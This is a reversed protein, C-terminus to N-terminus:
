NKAIIKLAYTEFTLLSNKMLEMSHLAAMLSIEKNSARSPLLLSPELLKEYAQYEPASSLNSVYVAYESLASNLEERLNSGQKLFSSSPQFPKPLRDYNIGPESDTLIVKTINNVSSTNGEAEDIMKKQIINIEALLSKTRSHLQEMKPFNLSDGSSKNLLEENLTYTYSFLAQQQAQNTYYGANFSGQLNLNILVGPVVISLTAIIMFIFRMSIFKEDRWTLWTYWPLAIVGLILVGSIMLTTAFPWHQIKFLMGLVYFIIGFAGLIYVPRKSRNEQDTIRSITLAPIFFLICSLGALSLIIGAGAWHQIKFLTGSIFLVGAFFGSIFLFLRKTNHTEQWLVYLASPLFALSLFLAGLTMMSGALPWHQIKFLAAFGFLITGAVGSFKMLNKMNRYKTDVLFLTEEQIEKLRRTGMKQKVRRYAESFTMGSQMENEVDCCIHDILDAPLHSYTIDQRGVDLSIQDINYLSLEPM